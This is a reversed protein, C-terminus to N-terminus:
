EQCKLKDQIGAKAPILPHIFPSFSLGPLASDICGKGDVMGLSEVEPM